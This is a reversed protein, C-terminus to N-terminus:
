TLANRLRYDLARVHIREKENIMILMDLIVSAKQITDLLERAKSTLYVKRTGAQHTRNSPISLEGDM